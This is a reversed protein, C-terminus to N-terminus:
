VAAHSKGRKAADELVDLLRNVLFERNFMTRVFRGAHRGMSEREYTKMDALVLIGRALGESDGHEFRMGIQNGDLISNIYCNKPAIAIIPKEVSMANYIKSPHVIGVMANGMVVLHVDASSLSDGLNQLPEFSLSLINTAGQREAEEVKYKENGQGVFVFVIDTRRELEKAAQLVTDLPHVWSHNGSYMVIFKGEIHHRQRFRHGGSAQNEVERLPWLPLVLIPKQTQAKQSLRLAMDSDLTVVTDARRLLLENLRELVRAYISTGKIMRMVVAQDPNIDMVWYVVPIGRLLSLLWAGAIGFPPTTSILLVDPRDGLLGRLAAQTSFSAQGLIRTILGFFGILAAALQGALAWLGEPLLRSDDSLYQRLKM